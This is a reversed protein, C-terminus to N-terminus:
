FYKLIEVVFDDSRIDYRFFNNIGLLTSPISHEMVNRRAAQIIQRAAEKPKVLSLISPFRGFFFIAGINRYNSRAM